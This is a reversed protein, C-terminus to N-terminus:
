PRGAVPPKGAPSPQGPPVAALSLSANLYGLIETRKADSLMLGFGAMRDMVDSWEAPSRKQSTATGLDHCQACSEQVAAKGPGEPLTDQAVAQFPLVLLLAPIAAIVSRPLRM